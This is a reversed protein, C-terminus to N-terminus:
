DVTVIFTLLEPHNWCRNGCVRKTVWTAEATGTHGNQDWEFKFTGQGGNPLEDWKTISGYADYPIGPLWAGERNLSFITFVGAPTGSSDVLAIGRCVMQDAYGEADCLFTSGAPLTYTQAHVATAGVVLLTALLALKSM